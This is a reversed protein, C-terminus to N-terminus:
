LLLRKRFTLIVFRAAPMWLLASLAGAFGTALDNHLYSYLLRIRTM